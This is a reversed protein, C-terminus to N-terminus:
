VTGHAQGGIHKTSYYPQRNKKQGECRALAAPAIKIGLERAAEDYGMYADSINSM